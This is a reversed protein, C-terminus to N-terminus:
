TLHNFHLFSPHNLYYYYYNCTELGFVLNSLKFHLKSLQLKYNVSSAHGAQGLVLHGGGLHEM